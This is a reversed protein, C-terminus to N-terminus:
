RRGDILAPLLVLNCLLMYTVGILLYIGLSAIGRHSALALSGFSAMTTLASFFVAQATSTSLLDEGAWSDPDAQQATRHHHVLHIGSDVGIGLLLPMVVINVFNVPLDILVATACTLLSALLLPAMVLVVDGIRRWLLFVVLVVAIVALALAERVSSVTARAWELVSVASGTTQPAVARVGDVFRALAEDDNLDERPLVEVRARGDAAVMREKLAIPLAALDVTGPELAKWLLLMQDQLSGLLSKEFSQLAEEQREITELRALFREIQRRARRASESRGPDGAIIWPADLLDRLARLALIQDAVPPDPEAVSFSAPAPVFFTLDALIELKEEQDEPVYDMLTVAREVVDLARVEAALAEASALDDSLLDITWPSNDSDALLEEFTQTTEMSPDRIRAVNIDFELRPILFLSGAGLLVAAVRVAWVHRAAMPILTVTFWRPAPRSRRARSAGGITLLAPLVTLTAILSIPMGTGSILGLEVVAAYDTPFFAYFGIATTVACLVLSGGVGGATGELAVPHDSGRRLLEVYRMGLHIGFDVGLGIFLVAFAISVVNLQGVAFTAFGATWILGVLLTFLVCTVLRGSGMAVYLIIAVLCFSGLIAAVAGRAVSVMEEYNLAVNGTLRVTVGRAPDLGLDAAAARIARMPEGGPLLLDYNLRPHVVILRRASDGPLTRELLLETWSIPRPHGEIVARAAFSVSDFIPVLNESLDADTQAADVATDLIGVLGPLTHDRALEALMPQVGALHDALDYLEDVNLYLLAHRTFFEGGGPVYVRPFMDADEALREALADAAERARTPTEADIVVFIAEDVIPFAEAFANYEKWFPLDDSLLARHSTDFALDLVVYALVAVTTIATAGLVARYHRQVMAVWVVLARSLLSELPRKGSGAAGKSM